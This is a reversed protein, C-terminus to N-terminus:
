THALLGCVTSVLVGFLPGKATDDSLTGVPYSAHFQGWGENLEAGCVSSGKHSKVSDSLPVPQCFSPTVTLHTLFRTKTFNQNPKSFQSKLKINKGLYLRQRLEEAM